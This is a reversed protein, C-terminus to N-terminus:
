TTKVRRKWVDFGPGTETCALPDKSDQGKACEMDTYWEAHAKSSLAVNELTDNFIKGANAPIFNAVINYGFGFEVLLSTSAGVLGVLLLAAWFKGGQRRSKRSLMNSLVIIVLLGGAALLMVRVLQEMLKANRAKTQEDAAQSDELTEDIKSVVDQEIELGDDEALVARAVIHKSLDDMVRREIKPVVTKKLLFYMGVVVGGIFMTQICLSQLFTVKQYARTRWALFMIGAILVMIGILISNSVLADQTVLEKDEVVFGGSSVGAKTDRAEKFRVGLRERFAKLRDSPMSPVYKLTIYFMFAVQLGLAIVLLVINYIVIRHLNVTPGRALRNISYAVFFVIFGMAMLIISIRLVWRNQVAAGNTDPDVEKLGRLFTMFTGSAVDLSPYVKADPSTVESALCSSGASCVENYKGNVFGSYAPTLQEYAQFEVAQTVAKEEEKSLFFIFAMTLAVLEVLLNVFGHFITDFLDQRSSRTSALTSEGLPVWPEKSSVSVM